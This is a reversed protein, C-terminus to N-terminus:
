EATAVNMRRPIKLRKLEKHIHFGRTKLSEEKQRGWQLCVPYIKSNFVTNM